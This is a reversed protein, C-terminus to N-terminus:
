SSGPTRKEVPLEEASLPVPSAVAMSTNLSRSTSEERPVVAGKPSSLMMYRACTFSSDCTAATRTAGEPAISTHTHRLPLQSYSDHYACWPICLTATAAEAVPLAEREDRHEDGGCDENYAHQGYRAGVGGDEHCLRVGAETGLRQLDGTAVHLLYACAVRLREGGLRTGRHVFGALEVGVAAERSAQVPHLDALVQQAYRYAHLSTAGFLRHLYHRVDVLPDAIVSRLGARRMRARPPCVSMSSMIASTIPTDRRMLALATAMEVMREM